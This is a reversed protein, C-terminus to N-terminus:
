FAECKFQFSDSHNRQSSMGDATFHSETEQHDQLFLVRLFKGNMRTSTSVIAPLFSINQNDAYQQRNSNKKAVMGQLQLGKQKVHRSSGFRDHTMSLDFVLSRRGAEDQLYSRLEVDGPRQGACTSDDHLCFHGM